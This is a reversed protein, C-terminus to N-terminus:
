YKSGSSTLGLHNNIKNKFEVDKNYLDMSRNVFKQLTLSGEISTSKFKNYVDEILYVSTFKTKAKM